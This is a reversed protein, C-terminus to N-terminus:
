MLGQERFSTYNGNHGVIIHDLLDIGLIQGAQALRKTAKIDDKSPTTIGTPHNHAIIIAASNSLVATKFVERPHIPATNLDGISVTTLSTPQNKTDLALVLVKERDSELHLSVFEAADAPTNIFRGAYMTSGEKVLSLRVSVFDVRKAPIKTAEIALLAVSRKIITVTDM